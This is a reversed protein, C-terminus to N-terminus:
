RNGTMGSFDAGDGFADAMGLAILAENLNFESEFSFKPMTLDLSQIMSRNDIAQIFDASLAQEIEEYLGDKPVLLMM